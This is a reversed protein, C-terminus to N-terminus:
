ASSPNKIAEGYNGRIMAALAEYNSAEAEKRVRALHRQLEEWDDRSIGM